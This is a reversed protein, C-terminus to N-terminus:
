NTAAVKCVDQMGATREAIQMLLRSMDASQPVVIAEGAQNEPKEEKLANVLDDREITPMAYGLDILQGVIKLISNAERTEKDGVYKCEMRGISDRSFDYDTYKTRLVALFTDRRRQIVKPTAKDEGKGIFICFHSAVVAADNASMGNLSEGMHKKIGKAATDLEALAPAIILRITERTARNMDLDKVLAMLAPTIVSPTNDNTTEKKKTTM